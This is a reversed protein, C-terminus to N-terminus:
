DKSIKNVDYIPMVAVDDKLTFPRLISLLKDVVDKTGDVIIKGKSKLYILEAPRRLPKAAGGGWQKGWHKNPDHDFPDCQGAASARWIAQTSRVSVWSGFLRRLLTMNNEDKLQEQEDGLAENFQAVFDKVELTCRRIKDLPKHTVWHGGEGDDEGEFTFREGPKTPLIELVEQTLQWPTLETKNVERRCSGMKIWEEIGFSQADADWQASKLIGSGPSSPDKEFEFRIRGIAKSPRGERVRKKFASNKSMEGAKVKAKDEPNAIVMSAKDSFPLRLGNRANITTSDFVLEWENSNHLELLKAQLRELYSGKIDTETKFRGLTVYRIVPARDADVILQPWVLHFSSKLMDKGKNYGSASYVLAELHDFHPYIMHVCQARKKMMEGPEGFVNGNEDRQPKQMLLVDPPVGNTGPAPPGDWDCKCQIDLDEIFPFRSTQRESIYLYIQKPFLWAIHNFLEQQTQEDDPFFWKGTTTFTDSAGMLSCHTMNSGTTEYLYFFQRAKEFREMEDDTKILKKIFRDAGYRRQPFLHEITQPARHDNQLGGQLQAKFDWHEFMQDVIDSALGQFHSYTLGPQRKSSWDLRSKRRHELMWSRDGENMNVARSVREFIGDSLHLLTHFTTIGFNQQLPRSYQKWIEEETKHIPNWWDRGRLRTEGLPMLMTRGSHRNFDFAMLKWEHQNTRRVFQELLEHGDFSTSVVSAENTHYQLKLEDWEPEKPPPGQHEAAVFIVGTLELRGEPAGEPCFIRGYQDIDVRRREEHDESGRTFFVQRWPPWCGRPLTTLPQKKNPPRATTWSLYGELMVVDGEKICVGTAAETDGDSLLHKLKSKVAAAPTAGASALHAAPELAQGESLSFRIGDLCLCGKKNQQLVRMIGKQDIMHVKGGQVTIEGNPRLTVAVSNVVNNGGHDVPQLLNALCRIERRPRLGEPLTGVHQSIFGYVADKLKGQLCIINGSRQLSPPDEEDVELARAKEEQGRAGDGRTKTQQMWERLDYAAVPIPTPEEGSVNCCIGSFHLVMPNTNKSFFIKLSGNPNVMSSTGCQYIGEYRSMMTPALFAVERSPASRPDFEAVTLHWGAQNKM